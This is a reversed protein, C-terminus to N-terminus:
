GKGVLKGVTDSGVRSGAFTVTSGFEVATGWVWEVSVKVKGRVVKSVTM